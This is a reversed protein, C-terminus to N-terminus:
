WERKNRRHYLTEYHKGSPSLSHWLSCENGDLLPMVKATLKSLQLFKVMLKPIWITIIPNLACVNQLLHLLGFSFSHNWITMAGEINPNIMLIKLTSKICPALLMIVVVPSFRGLIKVHIPGFHHQSHVPTKITASFTGMPRIKLYFLPM